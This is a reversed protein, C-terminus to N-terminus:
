TGFGWDLDFDSCILKKYKQEFINVDSVLTEGFGLFALLFVFNEFIRNPENKEYKKRDPHLFRANEVQFESEVYFKVYITLKEPRFAGTWTM